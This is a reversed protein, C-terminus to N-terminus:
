FSADPKIARTAFYSPMYKAIPDDERYSEYFGILVFGAEIQGGLQAELTHSFEIPDDKGFLRIREEETISETDSYPLSYALQYVGKEDALARDFAYEIPNLMGALLFGGPKLVRFAEKWVPRVDPVFINSVPHFILNFGCDPFASLDRMDGEVATLRLGHESAVARDRDLQKPSLDFVTVAAGTAALIPGQQGGGSALCLVELGKLNPFWSRPVPKTETLYVEWNGRKADEIDNGSVPITWPNGQRVERDWAKRNHGAIDM